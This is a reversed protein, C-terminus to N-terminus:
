CGAPVAEAKFVAYNKMALSPSGVGTPPTFNWDVEVGLSTENPVDQRRPSTSPSAPPIAPFTEFGSTTSIFTANGNYRTYPDSGINFVGNAASPAYIYINSVSGYVIKSMVAKVDTAIADDVQRGTLPTTTCEQSGLISALRAGQRAANQSTILDSALSTLDLAGLLLLVAVPAAIAFETLSQGYQLALRTPRM